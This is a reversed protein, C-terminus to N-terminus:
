FQDPNIKLARDYLELAEAQRGAANLRRGQQVLMLPDPVEQAALAAASLAIVTSATLLSSLM